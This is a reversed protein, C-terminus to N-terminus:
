NLNWARTLTGYCRPGDQGVQIDCATKIGASTMFLREKEKASELLAIQSLINKLYHNDAKLFLSGQDASQGSM